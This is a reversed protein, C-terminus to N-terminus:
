LLSYNLLKKKLTWKKEERGIVLNKIRVSGRKGATNPIQTLFRRENGNQEGGRGKYKKQKKKKLM